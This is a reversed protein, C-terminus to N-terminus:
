SKVNWFLLLDLDYFFLLNIGHTSVPYIISQSKKSRVGYIKPPRGDQQLIISFNKNINM